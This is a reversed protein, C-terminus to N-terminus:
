GDRKERRSLRIVAELAEAEHNPEDYEDSTYKHVNSVQELSMEALIRDIDKIKSCRKREKLDGLYTRDIYREQAEADDLMRRLMEDCEAIKGQGIKQRIDTLLSVFQETGIYEKKM